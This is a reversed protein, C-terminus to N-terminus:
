VQLQDRTINLLIENSILEKEIWIKLMEDIEPEDPNFLRIGTINTGGYMFPELDITHM